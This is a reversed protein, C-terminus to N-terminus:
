VKDTMLQEIDLHIYYGYPHLLWLISRNQSL